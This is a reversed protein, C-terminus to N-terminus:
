SRIRFKEMVPPDNPGQRRLVIMMNTSSITNHLLEVGGMRPMKLDTMVLRPLPHLSRDAYLDIGQLYATAEEGDNAVCVRNAVGARKLARQIFLQDNIDDEVILITSETNAM